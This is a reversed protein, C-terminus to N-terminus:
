SVKFRVTPAEAAARRVLEAVRTHQTRGATITDRPAPATNTPKIEATGCSIQNLSCLSRTKPTAAIMSTILPTKSRLAADSGQGVSGPAALAQSRSLRALEM